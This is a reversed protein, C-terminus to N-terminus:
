FDGIWGLPVQLFTRCASSVGDKTKVNWEILEITSVKKTLILIKFFIQHFVSFQLVNYILCGSIMLLLHVKIQHCFFSQSLNLLTTIRQLDIKCINPMQASRDRSRCGQLISEMNTVLKKCQGAFRSVDGHNIYQKLNLDSDNFLYKWTEIGAGSGQMQMRSM